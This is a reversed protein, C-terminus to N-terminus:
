VVGNRHNWIQWMIMIIREKEVVDNHKLFGLFLEESGNVNDLASEIVDMLNTIRWCDRASTCQITLHWVTKPELGCSPCVVLGDVGRRVLKAKVALWDKCLRWYFNKM